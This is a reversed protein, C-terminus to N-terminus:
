VGSTGSGSRGSRDHDAESGMETGAESGMETGPKQGWKQEAGLNPAVSSLLCREELREIAFKAAAAALQRM